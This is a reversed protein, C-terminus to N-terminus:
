RLDLRPVEIRSHASLLCQASQAGVTDEARIFLADTGFARNQIFAFASSATRKLSGRNHVSLKKTRACDLIRASPVGDACTLAMEQVRMIM